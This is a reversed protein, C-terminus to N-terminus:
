THTSFASNQRTSFLQESLGEYSGFTNNSLGSAYTKPASLRGKMFSSNKASFTFALQFALKDPSDAAIIADKAITIPPPPKRGVEM